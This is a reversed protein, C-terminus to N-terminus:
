PKQQLKNRIHLKTKAAKIAMNGKYFFNFSQTSIYIIIPTPWQKNHADLCIFGQQKNQKTENTGNFLKPHKRKSKLDFSQLTKCSRSYLGKILSTPSLLRRCAATSDRSSENVLVDAFFGSMVDHLCVNRRRLCIDDCIHAAWFSM